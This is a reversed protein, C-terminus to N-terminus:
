RPRFAIGAVVLALLVIAAVIGLVVGVIAKAARPTNISPDTAGPEVAAGGPEASGTSPTMPWAVPSSVPPVAPASVPPSMSLVESSSVKAPSVPSVLPSVTLAATEANPDFLQQFQGDLASNRAVPDTKLKLWERFGPYGALRDTIVYTRGKYDGREVVRRWEADPLHELRSLLATNEPSEGEPFLHLQVPRATAIERAHFTQVGDDRRLELLEYREYLPMSM